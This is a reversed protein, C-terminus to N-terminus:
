VPRKPLIYTTFGYIGVPEDVGAQVFRFQTKQYAGPVTIRTPQLVGDGYILGSGGAAASGYVLGADGYFHSSVDVNVLNSTPSNLNDQDVQCDVSYNGDQGQLFVYYRKVRHKAAPSGFSMYKSWWDFKIPKGLDSNGSDGYYLAGVRSSALVFQGTDSQSNWDLGFGSYTEEDGLWEGFTLDYVLRNHNEAQGTPTYSIYLKKDNTYLKIDSTQAVNRLIVSVRESSLKQDTGGNSAYIHYDSSMFYVSEEDKTIATAAVAGKSAPAEKLVFNTTDTGYLLYKTNRTFCFLVGQLSQISIVPDATKPSPIYIFSTAQISEYNGIDSYVVYNTNPQLYFLHNAHLEVNVSVPPSGGAVTVASGNYEQPSDFGNVFYTIDNVTEWDYVTASSSLGSKISTVAGTGDNVTYVNTGKAFLQIPSSASRYYRWAGLVGGTTSVFTKVNMEFAAASWTNGANSSTMATSASTSSSWSYSNSGNGQIYVVVWYATGSVQAPAEIFRASLYGYTGTISSSPISSTALLASPGSSDSYIAVILPGTGSSINKLNLDVRTLNGNAGATYKQAIWTILGVPQNAAGTVSTIAQDQAEGVPVSYFIHGLRKSIAVRNTASDPSYLRFNRGYVCRRPDAEEDPTYMDLGLLDFFEFPYLTQPAFRLAQSSSLTGKVM